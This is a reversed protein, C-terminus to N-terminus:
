LEGVPERLDERPGQSAEAGLEVERLGLVM